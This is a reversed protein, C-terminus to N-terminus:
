LYIHIITITFHDMVFARTSFSYFFCKMAKNKYLKKKCRRMCNIKRCVKLIFDLIKASFFFITKPVKSMCLWLPRFKEYIELCVNSYVFSFIEQLLEICRRILNPATWLPIKYKWWNKTSRSYDIFIHIMYEKLFDIRKM